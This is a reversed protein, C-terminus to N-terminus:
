TDAERQYVDDNAAKPISYISWLFQNSKEKFKNIIALPPKECGIMLSHKILYPNVYSVVDSINGISCSQAVHGTPAKPNDALYKVLRKGQLMDHPLESAIADTTSDSLRVSKTNFM